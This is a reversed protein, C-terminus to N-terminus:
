LESTHEESRNGVVRTDVNVTAKNNDISLTRAYTEWEGFHANQTLVLKIPRYLGAGPYWRSSEEVNKLDIELLNDGGDKQIYPTIDTNFANDGYAWYGAKQGNVYVTPEAMAGDIMLTAHEYGKPLKFTKKYHGQGIWPLAGSRGSKETAKKEGNQEIRVVQMDWKKDFPGSIAWDHPVQVTQWNERDQSFQWTNIEKEQRQAQATTAFATLATFIIYKLKM